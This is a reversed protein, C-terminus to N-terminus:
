QGAGAKKIAFWGEILYSTFYRNVGTFGAELLLAEIEDAPIPHSTVGISSDFQDWGELTIGNDLMHTKWAKMQLSWAETRIDGQIAAAFFPAGAQMRSAIERLLQLKQEKGKLFHLVLMCTAADYPNGYALNHLDCQHLTVRAGLGAAAMRNRAIELMAKSPDIGTFSWSEHAGLTVLEQGGGAGVILINATHHAELHVSLLRDLMNYLLPYGPIKLAITREYQQVDPHEWSRPIDKRSENM